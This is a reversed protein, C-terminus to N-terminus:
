TCRTWMLKEASNKWKHKISLEIQMALIQMALEIQMNKLLAATKASNPIKKAQCEKSIASNQAQAWYTYREISRVSYHTPARITQRQKSDASLHYRQKPHRQKPQHEFPIDRCVQYIQNATKKFIPHATYLFELSLVSSHLWLVSVTM